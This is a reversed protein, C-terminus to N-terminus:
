AILQQYLAGAEHSGEFPRYASCGWITWWWMSALGKNRAMVHECPMLILLKLLATARACGPLIAQRTCIADSTAGGADCVRPVYRAQPALKLIRLPLGRREAADIFQLFQASELM